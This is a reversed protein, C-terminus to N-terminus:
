WEGKEPKLHEIRKGKVQRIWGTPSRHRHRHYRPYPWYISERGVMGRSTLLPVLSVGDLHQHPRAPLGLAELVTPYFDTSIVPAATVSGTLIKGPWKVILPVRLGGEYNSGKNARLPANNTASAFGGKESTFVVLTRESLGRQQLTGMLRRVSEDRSEVMRGSRTKGKRRAGRVGAM